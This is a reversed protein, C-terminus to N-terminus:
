RQIVNSRFGFWIIFTIVLFIFEWITVVGKFVVVISLALAIGSVVLVLMTFVRIYKNVYGKLGNLGVYLKSLCIFGVILISVILAITVPSGDVNLYDNLIDQKYSGTVISYILKAIDIIALVIVGTSFYKGKKNEM